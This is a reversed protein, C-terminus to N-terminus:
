KDLSKKKRDNKNDEMRGITSIFGMVQRLEKQTCLSLSHKKVRSQVFQTIRAEWDEGLINKARVIVAEKQTTQRSPFFRFTKQNQRELIVNLDNFISKLESMDCESCSQKGTAGYIITRYNEDNLHSVKKQAHILSILRTRNSKKSM